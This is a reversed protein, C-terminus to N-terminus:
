AHRDVPRRLMWGTISLRERTAPLVEHEFEDSLFLALTGGDPTIDWTSEGSLDPSYLRLAGGDDATWCDNLYLVTSLVRTNVGHLADSHRGYSTSVPYLALHAELTVLGLFLQQELELRLLEMRDFYCRQASSATADDLWLVHDSRSQTRVQRQDGRGVNAAHFISGRRWLSLAELALAQIEAVPLFGAITAWGRVRLSDAVSPLPPPDSLM